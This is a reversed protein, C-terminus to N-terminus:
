SGVHPQVDIVTFTISGSDDSITVQYPEGQAMPKLYTLPPFLTEEEAPFCSLYALDAGRQMFSDMRLRLLVAGSTSAGYQLAVSLHKTTSMPAYETGGQALFTPETFSDKIGRWLDKQHLSHGSRPPLLKTSKTLKASKILRHSRPPEDLKASSSGVSSFRRTQEREAEVARLQKIAETILKMTIPLPHPGSRGRERLPKNLSEFAATTYLRLALV